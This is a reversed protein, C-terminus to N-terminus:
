KEARYLTPIRTKIEQKATPLLLKNKQAYGMGLKNTELRVVDV